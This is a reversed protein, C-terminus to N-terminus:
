KATSTRESLVTTWSSDVNLKKALVVKWHGFENLGFVSSLKIM